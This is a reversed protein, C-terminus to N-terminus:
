ALAQQRRQCSLLHTLQEEFKKHGALRHTQYQCALGVRMGANVFAELVRPNLALQFQESATLRCTSM